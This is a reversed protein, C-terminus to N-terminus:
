TREVDSPRWPCDVHHLAILKDQVNTGAGMKTTSGILIRVNGKRVKSFLSEKQLETNADHIFSIESKPIGKEILKNKIDDYINFSGDKTPTSLDCFVLQTSKNDITDKWIEFINQSCVNIKSTKDDEALPNILRQDLALKRGDNVINLMNDEKLSISKNKIADAREGLNEVLSQQLETPKTIITTHEVKPVPLNLMDATQIDSVDKWLKILEPLNFFKAFRTKAQFSKGDPSIDHDTIKQGFTVAWSDFHKLNMKELTDYQLYRMMTYLETMSNSVPIGTAFVLGKNHTIKDLYQCKAFLDISKQSESQSIGAVNIMKTQIFLNKFAHAEDIFLKDVGLEEFTIVNDKKEINTLKELRLEINKKTKELQKITYREGQTNKIEKISNIVDDIQNKLFDQQNAVSLPIKEFQSHSFAIIDFDGTAIKSCFKKRNAPEFDKKSTVLVNANPYLKYVDSAIQETLHKPVAFLAKQHLGLRKGEMASAIMTFTKGAGVCHALLTNGGYLTRAVANKQHSRLHIEPNM